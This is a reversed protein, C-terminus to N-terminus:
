LMWSPYNTIGCQRSIMLRAEKPIASPPIRIQNSSNLRSSTIWSNKASIKAAILYSRIRVDESVRLISSAHLGHLWTHEWGTLIAYNIWKGLRIEELGFACIIEMRLEWTHTTHGSWVPVVWKATASM